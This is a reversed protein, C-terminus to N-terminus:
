PLVEFEEDTELYSGNIFVRIKGTTVGHPVEVEIENTSIRIVRAYQEDNFQVWLSNNFNEGTIIVHDMAKGQKPSFGTVVPVPNQRVFTSQSYGAFIGFGGDLNSYVNVPQALPDGSTSAQLALTTKYRYYDESVSRLIVVVEDLYSYGLETSQITIETEQGDFLIDKLLLGGYGYDSYSFSAKEFSPDDSEFRVPYSYEEGRSLLVINYYNKQQPPDKFKIKIIDTQSNDRLLVSFKADMIEVPIPVQCVGSVAQYKEAIAKLEYTKGIMPKGTDSKYYGDGKSMLTDVPHGDEYVVVLANNIKSLPLTDLIFRNLTVRAKWLSDPNFFSNVTLDNHEFPVDIDVILECGLCIFLIFISTYKKM